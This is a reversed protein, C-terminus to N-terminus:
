SDYSDGSLGKNGRGELGVPPPSRPLKSVEEGSVLIVGVDSAVEASVVTPCLPAEEKPPM